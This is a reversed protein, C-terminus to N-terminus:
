VIGGGQEFRFGTNYWEILNGKTKTKFVLSAKFGTANNGIWRGRNIGHFTSWKTGNPEALCSWKSENWKSGNAGGINESYEREGDDFDMNTYINLVFATSSKIRPNLMQIKKINSNGLGCYAQHVNGCIAVGNDSHGEDFLYVGGESGFYLRGEFLCWCFAQIDTFRCWAGSSMNIVHQEFRNGVPVNFLAYGGRPYVIGQWGDLNRWKRVRDLVLGRIKDSYAVRTAGGEALGLVSSLPVYGDECIIVIDGQYQLTCNRGIPRSIFYKGKLKWSSANGPDEGGYVLVEGETTIFVTLDDIGQGGDITWCAIAALSGGRVFMSSLDVSNLTGEIEGVGSSYWYRFSNKEIYFVRQKSVAVSILKQKNLGTGSLSTTQWVWNDNQGQKYILPNDEGNVLLLSNRFQVYSWRNNGLNSVKVTDGGSTVDIIKGDAAAFIRKESPSCFTILTEPKLDDDLLSYIKYGGRLVVCNEAPYYNDMVIADSEPMNDLADRRNLGGVPAPLTYNQARNVARNLM